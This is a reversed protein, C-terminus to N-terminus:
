PRKGAKVKAKLRAVEALAEAPNGEVEAKCKDCCLFIRQGKVTMEVPPGMEGLRANTVPCWEQAEVLRRNEPDLQARSAAVKADKRAKRDAAPAAAKHLRTVVPAADGKKELTGQVRDGPALGGLLAPDAVDFTSTAAERFGAIKGHEVTLSKQDTGVSVLRGNFPYELEVPSSTAAPTGPRAYKQKFATVTALTKEANARAKTICLPCCLFVPQGNLRQLVPPGMSGLRNQKLIPCFQQAEALERDHPALRALSAQITATEDDSAAAATTTVAAKETKGGGAGGYYISGAGPNLRTEADVLFSGNTVVRDGAELGGFVPYITGARPGLQVSVGEYEGPEGTERYVIKLSGTDIVANEPVALVLDRKLLAEQVATRLLTSLGAPMAPGGPNGLTRAFTDLLVGNRWTDTASRQFLEVQSAPVELRVTAYMGPRLDGHTDHGAGEPPRNDINFRVTLTRSRADLHPHVQAVTGSFVSGPLADVTASVPLGEKLFALQSEYLQAEIWVTSVDAVDYLPDGEEVYGGGLPYRRIVHGTIPSRITIETVPRGDREWERIQDDDIKWRRLRERIMSRDREPANLLNQVEAALDANYLEALPQGQHIWEDTVNVYLKDIRSRGAITSSIRWLKTEDWEVSGVTTITKTVPLYTVAVTRVGAQRVQLPSLNVRSVIGAPLAKPPGSEKERRALPMHCIPCKERDNDRVIQPHMPCYWEYQGGAAEDAHAPRTWLEWYANITKWNGIVLGIVVLIAVFRLRAQLTKVVMWVKWWFSHLAPLPETAPTPGEGQGNVDRHGPRQFTSM